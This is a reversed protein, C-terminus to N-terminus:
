KFGGCSYCPQGVIRDLMNNNFINKSTQWKGSGASQIIKQNYHGSQQFQIPPQPKRVNISFNMLM